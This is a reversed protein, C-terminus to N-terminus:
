IYIYINKGLIEFAIYVNSMEKTLADAWFINGNKWDIDLAEKVSRPLEIGYKHSTRRLCSNVASVIVDRKRLTYPVWWTFAPEDAIDRAMAYEAVLVPNSEKLIKLDIWQRSGDNWQVLLKWGVTTQRMRKTGSKTVFYKDTM